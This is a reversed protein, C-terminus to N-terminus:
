RLQRELYNEDEKVGEGKTDVTNLMISHSRLYKQNSTGM